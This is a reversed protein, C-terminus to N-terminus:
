TRRRRRLAGLGVLGLGLVSLTAPEPIAEVIMNVDGNTITGLFVGTITNVGPPLYFTGSSYNPNLLCGSINEAGTGGCSFSASGPLSTLGLGYSQQGGPNLGTAGAPATTAAIGNVFIQFQDGATEVDTVLLYGGSGLTIILQLMGGGTGPAAIANATMPNPLIPGNTGTGGAFPGALLPTNSSGFHGTYWQNTIINDAEAPASVAALVVCAAGALLVKKLM